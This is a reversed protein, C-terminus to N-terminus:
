ELWIRNLQVRHADIDEGSFVVLGDVRALDLPRGLPGSEIDEVPIKITSRGPPLVFKRNFRDETLQPGHLHQKDHVRITLSFDSTSKVEVDVMLYRYGRWDPFLNRFDIAMGRQSMFEERSPWVGDYIVPFARNREIYDASIRILPLCTVLLLALALTRGIIKVHTRNTVTPISLLGIAAGTINSFIDSYSADRATPIQAAESIVALVGAAAFALFARNANARWTGFAHFLGIAVLAFVPVHLWDFLTKLWLVPTAPAALHLAVLLLLTVALSMYRRISDSGM